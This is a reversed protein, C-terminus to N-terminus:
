KIGAGQKCFASAERVVGCVYAERAVRRSRSGDGVLGVARGCAAQLIREGRARSGRAGACGVRADVRRMRVCRALGAAQAQARLVSSGDGVARQGDDTARRGSCVGGALVSLRNSMQRAGATQTGGGSAAAHQLVYSERGRGRCRTQARSIPCTQAACARWEAKTVVRGVRKGCARREAVVYARSAVRAHSVRRRVGARAPAGGRTCTYVVCDVYGRMESAGVVGRRSGPVDARTVHARMGCSGGAVVRRSKRRRSQESMHRKQNRRWAAAWGDDLERVSLFGNLGKTHEASAKQGLRLRRGM